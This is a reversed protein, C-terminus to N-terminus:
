QPGWRLSGMEFACDNKETLKICLTSKTENYVARALILGALNQQSQCSVDSCFLVTQAAPTARNLILEAENNWAGWWCHMVCPIETVLDRDAAIPCEQGVAVLM